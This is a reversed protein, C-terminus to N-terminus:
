RVHGLTSLTSSHRDGTEQDIDQVFMQATKDPKVPSDEGGWLTAGKSVLIKVTSVEFGAKRRALKSEAIRKWSRRCLAAEIAM